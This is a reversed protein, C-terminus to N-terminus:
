FTNWRKDAGSFCPQQLLQPLTPNHRIEVMSSGTRALLTSASESDQITELVTARRNEYVAQAFCYQLIV